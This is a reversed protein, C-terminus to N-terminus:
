SKSEILKFIIPQFVNHLMLLRDYLWQHEQHTDANKVHGINSNSFGVRYDKKKDVWKLEHSNDNFQQNIKDKQKKLNNYDMMSQIRLLAQLETANRFAILWFAGDSHRDESKRTERDIQIGYISPLDPKPFLKLTNGQENVYSEFAKWYEEYKEDKTGPKGNPIITEHVQQHCDYCLGSLDTQINEKGVNDYTKHHLHEAKNGCFCLRGFEEFYKNRIENWAKSKLYHQYKEDSVEKLIAHWIDGRLDRAEQFDPKLELAEDLLDIAFYGSHNFPSKGDSLKRFCPFEDGNWCNQFALVFNHRAKNVNDM